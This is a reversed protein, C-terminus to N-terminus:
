LLVYGSMALPGTTADSAGLPDANVVVADVPAENGAPGARWGGSVRRWACRAGLHIEVGLRRVASELATVLAGLGGEVHHVGEVRELHPILAFAASAEYPSAGTYTAFRGVFQQLRPDRFHRAALAHLTSMQMGRLVASPGRRLVRGVFGAVGDFPAELYP